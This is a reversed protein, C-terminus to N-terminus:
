RPRYIRCNNETQTGANKMRVRGTPNVAGRILPRFFGLATRSIITNNDYYFYFINNYYYYYLISLKNQRADIAVKEM